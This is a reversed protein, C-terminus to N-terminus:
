QGTNVELCSADDKQAVVRDIGARQSDRMMSESLSWESMQYWSLSSGMEM